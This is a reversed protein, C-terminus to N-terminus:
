TGTSGSSRLARWSLARKAEHMHQAYDEMHEVLGRLASFAEHWHDERAIKCLLQMVDDEVTPTITKLRQLLAYYKEQGRLLLRMLPEFQEEEDTM